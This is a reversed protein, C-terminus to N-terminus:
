GKRRRRGSMLYIAARVEILPDASPEMGDIRPIPDFIIKKLEPDQDNAVKSLTLTGFKVEQRSEPWHVTADDTVDAIDAIQVFIDMKAPAAALRASMEDRLFHESRSAADETTLHKSGGEPRIRFRGFKSVGEKNIFEYANVAFYNELAYSAPIPKPADFFAKAKPFREFFKDLLTPKAADPGSAVLARALELFEEGTRVPFGDESHGVIDTHSHAALQFRVAFGRPGGGAPDNDPVTPVGAFNSFRVIVPTSERQVHEAKTLRRADETPVFTGECMVGKAHVPRFGPHLGFLADLSDLLDKILAESPVVGATTM